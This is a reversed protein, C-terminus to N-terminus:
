RTLANQYMQQNSKRLLSEISKQERDLMMNPDNNNMQQISDVAKYFSQLMQKHYDQLIRVGQSLYGIGRSLTVGDRWVEAYEGLRKQYIEAKFQSEKVSDIMNRFLGNLVRKMEIDQDLQEKMYKYMNHQTRTRTKEQDAAIEKKLTKYYNKPDTKKDYASLESLKIEHDEVVDPINNEINELNECVAIANDISYNLEREREDHRPTYSRVVDLLVRNMEGVNQQQELFLDYIGQRPSDYGFLKKVNDVLNNAHRYAPSDNMRQLKEFKKQNLNIVSILDPLTELGGTGTSAPNSGSVGYLRRLDSQSVQNGNSIDDGGMRWDQANNRTVVEKKVPGKRPATLKCRGKIRNSLDDDM